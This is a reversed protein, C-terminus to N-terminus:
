TRPYVLFIKRITEHVTWTGKWGLPFNAADGPKLTLPDGGDEMVTMLGFIVYIFEGRTTFEWLSTSPECKRIGSLVDDGDFFVRSRVPIDGGLPTASPPALLGPTLDEPPVAEPRFTVTLTIEKLVALASTATSM